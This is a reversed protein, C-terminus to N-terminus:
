TDWRRANKYMIWDLERGPRHPLVSTASHVDFKNDIIRQADHTSCLDHVKVRPSASRKLNVLPAILTPGGDKRISSFSYVGVEFTENM